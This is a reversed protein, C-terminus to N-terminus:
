SDQREWNVNLSTSGAFRFSPKGPEKPSDSKRYAISLQYYGTTDTSDLRTAIELERVALDLNNKKLHLKGLSSHIAAFAPQLATAMRDSQGFLITQLLLFTGALRFITLSVGSPSKMVEFV